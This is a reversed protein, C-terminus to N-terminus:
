QDLLQFAQVRMNYPDAVYIRNKNDIFIGAPLWFQGLNMGKEGFFLLLKGERDFIKVTDKISDVVYINGHSDAAVGKPKDLNGYADGISGFTEVFKGSRSFIQVRFNMADTVHLLGNGDVFLHTPFNFEGPLAGRHGISGVRKGSLDYRYITDALTDAVYITSNKTDIALCTPREFDGEFRFLYKGKEDFVLVKKLESDSVYIHGAPDAVVGVPTQLEDMAAEFITLADGTKLDIVTVRCAGPDAVYLRDKADVYVGYPRMLVNSTRPDTVDGAVDGALFDVIGRKGEASKAVQTISWLYKIRPKEPPGPWIIKGMGSTDIFAKPPACGAMLLTIFMVVYLLPRLPRIASHLKVIMQRMMKAIMGKGYWINPSKM